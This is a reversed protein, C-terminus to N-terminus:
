HIVDYPGHTRILHAWIYKAECETHDEYECLHSKGYVVVKPPSTLTHPRFYDLGMKHNDYHSYDVGM